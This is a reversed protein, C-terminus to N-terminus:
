LRSLIQNVGVSFIGNVFHRCGTDKVETAVRHFTYPGQAGRNARIRCKCDSWKTGTSAAIRDM